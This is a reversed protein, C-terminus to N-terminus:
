SRSPVPQALWGPRLRVGSRHCRLDRSRRWTPGTPVPRTRGSVWPDARGQWVRLVRGDARSGIRGLGGQQMRTGPRPGSRSGPLLGVLFGALAGAPSTFSVVEPYSAPATGSPSAQWCLFAM